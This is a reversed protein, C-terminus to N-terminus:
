IEKHKNLEHNICKMGFEEALHLQRNALYTLDVNLVHFPYGIPKCDIVIAEPLLYRRRIQNEFKKIEDKMQNNM